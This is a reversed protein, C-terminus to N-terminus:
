VQKNMEILLNKPTVNTINLTKSAKKLVRKLKAVKSPSLSVKARTNNTDFLKSDLLKAVDSIFKLGVEKSPSKSEMNQLNKKEVVLLQHRHGTDTSKFSIIERVRHLIHVLRETLDNDSKSHQVGVDYRGPTKFAEKGEAIQVHNTKQLKRFPTKAFGRAKHEVGKSSVRVNLTSPRVRRTSGKKKKKPKGGQLKCM